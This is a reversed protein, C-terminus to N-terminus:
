NEYRGNQSMKWSIDADRYLTYLLLRETSVRLFNGLRRLRNQDLAQELFRAKRGLVKIM